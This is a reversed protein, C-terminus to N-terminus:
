LFFKAQPYFGYMQTKKIIMTIRWTSDTKILLNWPTIDEIHPMYNYDDKLLTYDELFIIWNTNKLLKNSLLYILIIKCLEWLM